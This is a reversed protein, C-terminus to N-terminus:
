QLLKFIILLAAFFVLQLVFIFPAIRNGFRIGTLRLFLHFIMSIIFWSLYNKVPAYGGEFEWMDLLPATQELLVDYVIMLLAASIIKFIYNVPLQDVIISTCYVLFLWNIGIMLPTEFLKLGLGEGYSYSGFIMGSRVGVAETLFGSIFIVSFILLSKKYKDTKHFVALASISLLLAFPTLHTFFNSTVPHAFGAVGVTFFIILILRAKKEETRLKNIIGTINSKM